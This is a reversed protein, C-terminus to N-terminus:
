PRSGSRGSLDTMHRLLGRRLRRLPPRPRRPSRSSSRNPPPAATEPPRRTPRPSISSGRRRRVSRTEPLTLEVRDAAELDGALVAAVSRVQEYGTMELFTPARGYSKM